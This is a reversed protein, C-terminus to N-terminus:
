FNKNNVILFVLVLLAASNLKISSALSESWFFCKDKFYEDKFIDFFCKLFFDPFSQFTTIAHWMGFHITKFTALFRKPFRWFKISNESQNCMSATKKRSSSLLLVFLLLWPWFFQSLQNSYLSESHNESVISASLIKESNESSRFFIAFNFSFHCYKKNEHEGRFVVSAAATGCQQSSFWMGEWNCFITPSAPAYSQAFRDKTIFLLEARASFAM